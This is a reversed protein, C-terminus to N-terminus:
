RSEARCWQFYRIVGSWLSSLVSRSVTAEPKQTSSCDVLRALDPVLQLYSPVRIVILFMYKINMTGNRCTHKNYDAVYM